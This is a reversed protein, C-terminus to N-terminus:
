AHRVGDSEHTHWFFSNVVARFRRGAAADEMRISQGPPFSFLILSPVLCDAPRLM